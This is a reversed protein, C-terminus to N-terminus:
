REEEVASGLSSERPGAHPKDNQDGDCRDGDALRDVRFEAAEQFTLNGFASFM